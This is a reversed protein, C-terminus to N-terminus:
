ASASESIARSLFGTSVKKSSTMTIASSSFTRNLLSDRRSSIDRRKWRIASKERITVSLQVPQTHRAKEGDGGPCAGVSFIEGQCSGHNLTILSTVKPFTNRQHASTQTYIIPKAVVIEASRHAWRKHTALRLVYLALGHTSRFRRCRPKKTELAM